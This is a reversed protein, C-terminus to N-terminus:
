LQAEARRLIEQWVRAAEARLDELSGANDIVVDARPRKAESPMQAAIMRDAEAPDLGRDRVIRERRLDPPSDVLVILDFDDAMGVEFLLPIDAVIVPVGEERARQLEEDRLEAVRPHIIAELAARDADDRFVRDRLAARDLAGDSGVLEPGWREVIRALAPSGPEVARRALGDADIVRGGLGAWVSAVTSKGSAINGTLGVKLM